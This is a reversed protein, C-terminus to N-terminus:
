LSDEDSLVIFRRNKETTESARSLGFTVKNEPDPRPM